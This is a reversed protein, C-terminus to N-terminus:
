TKFEVLFPRTHGQGDLFTPHSPIPWCRTLLRVAHLVGRHRPSNVAAATLALIFELGPCHHALRRVFNLSKGLSGPPLVHCQRNHLPDLKARTMPEVPMASLAFM